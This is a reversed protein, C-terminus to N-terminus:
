HSDNQTFQTAAPLGVFPSRQHVFCYYTSPRGSERYPQKWKAPILPLSNDSLELSVCADPSTPTIIIIQLLSTNKEIWNENGQYSSATM